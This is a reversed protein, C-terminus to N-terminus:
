GNSKRRRSIQKFLPKNSKERILDLTSSQSCLPCIIDYGKYDGPTMDVEVPAVNEECKNCYANM